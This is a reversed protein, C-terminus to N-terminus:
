TPLLAVVTAFADQSSCEATTTLRFVAVGLETASWWVTAGLICALVTGRGQGRGMWGFKVEFYDVRTILVRGSGCFHRKNPDQLRFPELM